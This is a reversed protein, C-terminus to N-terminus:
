NMLVKYAFHCALKRKAQERKEIIDHLLWVMTYICYIFTKRKAHSFNLYVCVDVGLTLWVYQSDNDISACSYYIYFHLFPFETWHILLTSLPWWLLRYHIEYHFFFIQLSFSEVRLWKLCCIDILNWCFFGFENEFSFM